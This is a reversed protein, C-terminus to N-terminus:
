TVFQEIFDPTILIIWGRAGNVVVDQFQTLFQFTVWRVWHMETRYVPHPVLKDALDERCFPDYLQSSPSCLAIFSLIRVLNRSEMSRMVAPKVAILRRSTRCLM